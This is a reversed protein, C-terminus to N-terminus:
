KNISSLIRLIETMSKNQLKLSITKKIIKTRFDNLKINKDNCMKTVKKYLYKELELETMNLNNDIFSHCENVVYIIREIEEFHEKDVDKIIDLVFDFINKYKQLDREKLINDKSLKNIIFSIFIVVLTLILAYFINYDM